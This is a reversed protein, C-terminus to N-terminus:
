QKWLPMESFDLFFYSRVKLLNNFAIRMETRVKYLSKVNEVTSNVAVLVHSSAEPGLKPKM